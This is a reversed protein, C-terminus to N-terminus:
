NGDFSRSMATLTDDAFPYNEESYHLRMVVVKKGKKVGKTYFGKRQGPPGFIGSVVFWTDKLVKYDITQNAEAAAGAVHEEFTQRLSKDSDYFTLSARDHTLSFGQGTSLIEFDPFVDSPLLISMGYKKVTVRTLKQTDSRDAPVNPISSAAVPSPQLVTIPPSPSMVAGSTLASAAKATGEDKRVMKEKIGSIKPEGDVVRIALDMASQGKSWETHLLSEAYFNLKFSAAYERNPVKEQLNIDGEIEYHRTPWRKNYKEIDRSIYVEDKQGEDFYDVIPAYLGLTAGEDKSQNV